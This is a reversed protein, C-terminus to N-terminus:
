ENNYYPLVTKIHYKYKCTGPTEAFVMQTYAYITIAGIGDYCFMKFRYRCCYSAMHSIMPEVKRM